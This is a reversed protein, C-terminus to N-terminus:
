AKRDPSYSANSQMQRYQSPTIGTQQKYQRCFHTVNQYGLEEALANISLDTDCLRFNAAEIKARILDDIPSIQFLARYIAHFRSPSLQALDALEATTWNHGLRSFMAKRIEKFLHETAPKIHMTTPSDSCSRALKILLEQYKLQLLQDSDPQRSLCETEIERMITTIFQGQSPLFPTNVPLGVSSLTGSLDGTMHMWDHELLSHSKFWQPHHAAFFICTGPPAHIVQGNLHLEVSNFFHLFTHELYMGNPRNITFGAREQWAHRAKTITISPTM